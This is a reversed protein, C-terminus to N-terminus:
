RPKQAVVKTVTKVVNSGTITRFIYKVQDKEELLFNVLRKYRHM